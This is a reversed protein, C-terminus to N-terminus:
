FVEANNRVIKLTRLIRFVRFVRLFSLDVPTGGEDDGGSTSMGYTLSFDIISVLM